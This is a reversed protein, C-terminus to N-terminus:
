KGKLHFYYVFKHQPNPLIQKVVREVDTQTKGSAIPMAEFLAFWVNNLGIEQWGNSYKKAYIKGVEQYYIHKLESSKDKLFQIEHWYKELNSQSKLYTKLKAVDVTEVETISTTLSTIIGFRTKAEEYIEKLGRRINSDVYINFFQFIGDSVIKDKFPLLVTEALTPLTSGVIDEFHSYLSLVGYVKHPKDATLFITHKKLYRFVLFRGLIFDKWSEIMAIDERSLSEAKEEVFSDFLQPNQYLAGRIKVTEEFSNKEIDEPNKIGPNIQFKQNTYVLLPKFLSFFYDAESEPLQM